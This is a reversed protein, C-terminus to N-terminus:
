KHKKIQEVIREIVPADDKRKPIGDSTPKNRSSNLSKKSLPKGKYLFHNSLFVDRKSFFERDVLNQSFLMEFLYNLQPQSGLWNILEIQKTPEQNKTVLSASQRQLLKEKHEIELSLKRRFRRQLEEETPDCDPYSQITAGLYYDKDICWQNHTKLINELYEIQKILGQLENCHSMVKHFDFDSAEMKVEELTLQQKEHGSLTLELKLLSVITFLKEKYAKPVDVKYLFVLSYNELITLIFSAQQEITPLNDLIFELTKVDFGYFPPFQFFAKVYEESGEYLPNSFIDRIDQNTIEANQSVQDSIFNSLQEAKIKATNEFDIWAQNVQTIVEEAKTLRNHLTKVKEIFQEKFDDPMKYNIAEALSMANKISSLYEIKKNSSPLNDCHNEIKQFDFNYVPEGDFNM